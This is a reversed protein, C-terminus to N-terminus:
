LWLDCKHTEPFTTTATIANPALIQTKPFLPWHPASSAYPIGTRAFNTWYALMQDALTNQAPTGSVNGFIYRIESGHPAGLPFSLPLNLYDMAHRDAFEYHYARTHKAMLGTTHHSLCSFQSDTLIAGLAEAPTGYESLPYRALIADARDGYLRRVATPYGEATLRRGALDYTTAVTLRGEDATAGQIVPVRHFRGTDLAQSVQLPLIRGDVNPTWRASPTLSATLVQDAPKARLCTVDSCGLSSAWTAGDRQQTEQTPLPFGCGSQAVARDFLGLTYPSVLNHCVSGGGASEGFITVNGPDGGFAAINDKVWRLAAQQDLLGYNGSLGHPSEEALGPHAFYGFAGLRYNFNVVVVDGKSALARGDYFTGSGITFGGGHIWVMVPRKYATRKAPTYVNLYLCDESPTGPGALDGWPTPESRQMCPNGPVSADRVGQWRAPPAPPKWRLTGVPPAAYPIGLYSHATPGATGRVEGYRTLVSPGDAGTAPVAPGGLILALAALLAAAWPTWSSIPRGPM